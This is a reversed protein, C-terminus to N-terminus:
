LGRKAKAEARKKSDALYQNMERDLQMSLTAATWDTGSRNFSMSSAANEWILWKCDGKGTVPKDPSEFKQVCRPKGFKGELADQLSDWNISELTYDIEILLDHYFELHYYQVAAGVDLQKGVQVVPIDCDAYEDKDAHCPIVDHKYKHQYDALSSGLHFGMTDNTKINFLETSDSAPNPAPLKPSCGALALVAGILTAKM